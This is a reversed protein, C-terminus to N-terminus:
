TPQSEFMEVLSHFIGLLFFSSWVAKATDRLPGEVEFSPHVTEYFTRYSSDERPRLRLM